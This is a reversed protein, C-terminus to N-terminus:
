FGVGCAICSHPWAADSEFGCAPCFRSSTVVCEHARGEIAPVPTMLRAKSTNAPLRSASRAHRFSDTSMFQILKQIRTVTHPHDRGGLYLNLKGHLDGLDRHQDLYSSLNMQALVKRSGAALMALARIAARPDESLVVGVRDATEETARSWADLPVAVVELPVALTAVQIGKSLMALVSGYTVHRAKIHGMEHALIFNLEEDELLEILGSHIVICSDDNTGFTFANLRRDQSIFVEPCQIDLVAAYDSVVSYIHPLQTPGVRVGDGLLQARQQPKSWHKTLGEVLKPLLPVADIIRAVSDDTSIRVAGILVEAPADPNGKTGNDVVLLQCTPCFSSGRQIDAGCRPCPFGVMSGFALMAFKLSLTVPTM